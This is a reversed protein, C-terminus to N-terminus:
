PPTRAPFTVSIKRSTMGKDSPIDDGDEPMVLNVRKAPIPVSPMTVLNMEHLLVMGVLFGVAASPWVAISSFVKWPSRSSIRSLLSRPFKLKTPMGGPRLTNRLDLDHEISTRRSVRSSIPSESMSQVSPM